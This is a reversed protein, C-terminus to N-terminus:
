NSMELSKQEESRVHVLRRRGFRSKGVKNFSSFFRGFFSQPPEGDFHEVLCFRQSEFLENEIRERDRYQRSRNVADNRLEAVVSEVKVKARDHFDDRERILTFFAFIAKYLYRSQNSKMTPLPNM